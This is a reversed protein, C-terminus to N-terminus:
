QCLSISVSEKAEGVQLLAESKQQRCHGKCQQADQTNLELTDVTKECSRPSAPCSM